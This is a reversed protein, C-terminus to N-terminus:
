PLRSRLRPLGSRKPGRGRYALHLGVEQALRREWCNGYCYGIILMRIMREPDISPRGIDSHHPELEKHLDELAVTVFLGACCHNEPIRDQLRFEYFLRGRDRGRRGIMAGDGDSIEIL